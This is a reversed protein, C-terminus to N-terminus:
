MCLEARNTDNNDDKCVVAVFPSFCWNHISLKRTRRKKGMSNM